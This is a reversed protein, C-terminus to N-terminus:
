GDAKVWVATPRGHAAPETSPEYGVRRIEGRKAAALFRSGLLSKRVVPLMPRLDNASFPRHNAAFARIAQDIVRRDQEDATAEVQDLARDRHVKPDADQPLLFRVEPVHRGHRRVDIGFLACAEHADAPRSDSNPELSPM